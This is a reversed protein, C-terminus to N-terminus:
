YTANGGDRPTYSAVVYGQRSLQQAQAFYELNPLAWSTIFLIVPHPGPTDPTYVTGKLTVGDRTAIDVIRFSPAASAPAALVCLSVAVTAAIVRLWHM